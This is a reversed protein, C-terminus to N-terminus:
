NRGSRLAAPTTDRNLETALRLLGDRIRTKVTARLVGIRLAIEATSLGAFYALLVSERQLPTLALLAVRVASRDASVLVSDIVTDIDPVHNGVAYRSDRVTRNRSLRVRDVARAHAVRLIWSSASGRAPDFRSAQQWLQFFVEQTVEKAQERDLVVKVAMGLVRGGFM